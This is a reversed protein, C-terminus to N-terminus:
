GAATRQELDARKEAWTPPYRRPGRLVRTPADHDSTWYAWGRTSDNVGPRWTVIHTKSRHHDVGVLWQDVGHIRVRRGIHQATLAGATRVRM